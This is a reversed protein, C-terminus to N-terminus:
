SLRGAALWRNILALAEAPKDHPVMHGADWVTAFALGDIERTQGVVVGDVVFERLPQSAFLKQGSWELGRAVRDMAVHNCIFDTTGAYLLVNVGHELLASFYPASTRLVDGSASFQSNVTFNAMTINPFEPAPPVGLVARTSPANLYAAIKKTIPYCLTDQVEGICETRMDYMSKCAIKKMQVCASISQLPRVNPTTIACQMDYYSTTTSNFGHKTELGEKALFVASSTIAAATAIASVLNIPPFNAQVLKQNNDHIQAAFLPVYRGGYSEGAIHFPRGQLDMADFFIALFAAIDKAAAETTDITQGYEAYSFSVGVPQEIFLMNANTNWSYPNIETANESIVTCPGLEMLMGLSSAGGPGGNLWLVVDDTQPSRRSEFYYFFLHRAQFDIYGAYSEVGHDCFGTTKRSNTAKIRVGYDPFATHKLTTYASARVLLLASVLLSVLKM